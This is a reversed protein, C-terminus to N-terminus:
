EQDKDRMATLEKELAADATGWWISSSDVGLLSPFSEAFAHERALNFGKEVLKPREAKLRDVEKQLDRMIKDAEDLTFQHNPEM